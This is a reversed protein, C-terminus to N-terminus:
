PSSRHILLEASSTEQVEGAGGETRCSQGGTLRGRRGRSALHTFFLRGGFADLDLEEAHRAAGIENGFLLLEEVVLIRVDLPNQDLLGLACGAKLLEHGQDHGACRGVGGADLAVDVTGEGVQSEEQGDGGVDFGIGFEGCGVIPDLGLFVVALDVLTFAVADAGAPDGGVEVVVDGEKLLEAHFGGAVVGFLGPAPVVEEGDGGLQGDVDIAVVGAVGVEVGVVHFAPADVPGGPPDWEM